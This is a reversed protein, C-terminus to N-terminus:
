LYERRAKIDAKLKVKKKKKIGIMNTTSLQVVLVVKIFVKQVEM